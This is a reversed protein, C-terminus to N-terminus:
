DSKSAEKIAMLYAEELEDDLYFSRIKIGSTVLYHILDERRDEELKLIIRKNDFKINTVYDLDKIVSKISEKDDSEVIVIVGLFKKILDEPSGHFFVKGNFILYVDDSVKKVDDLVHSTMLVSKGDKRMEKLIERMNYNLSPDTGINPEDMILLEPNGLIAEAIAVRQTMGKSYKAIKKNASDEMGVIELVRRIESKDIGKIRCSFELLEKGTMFPPLNPLEQVYGIEKFIKKNKFPDKNLVEVKGRSPFILGMIIRILTTKGAGNPGLISTIRGKEAELSVGRLAHKNGYFKEVNEARVSM